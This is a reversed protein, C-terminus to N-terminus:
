FEKGILKKISFDTARKEKTQAQEFSIPYNWRPSSQVINKRFYSESPPLQSHNHLYYNSDIYINTSCQNDRKFRKRRRLFSGHEFMDECAPHLSWYHGKGLTGPEKPVKVFCDNLSLNHRISNQWAPFRERYYPFNQVIFECIGRLTLKQEASQLVAMTILAIYSYPPKVHELNQKSFINKSPQGNEKCTVHGSKSKHFRELTASFNRKKWRKNEMGKM